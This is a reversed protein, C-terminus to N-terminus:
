IENIVNEENDCVRKVLDLRTFPRNAAITEEDEEIENGEEDVPKKRNARL